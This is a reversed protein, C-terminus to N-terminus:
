SLVKTIEEIVEEFKKKGSGIDIINQYFNAIFFMSMRTSGEIADLDPSNPNVLFTHRFYVGDEETQGFHGLPVVRNLVALIKYVDLILKDQVKFPITVFFQLISSNVPSKTGSSEFIDDVFMMQLIPTKPDNVIAMLLQNVSNDQNKQLIQSDLGKESLYKQIQNLLELSKSM